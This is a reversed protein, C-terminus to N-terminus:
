LTERVTIIGQTTNINLQVDGVNNYVFDYVCYCPDLENKLEFNNIDIDKDKFKAATHGKLEIVMSICKISKNWYKNGLDKLFYIKNNIFKICKWNSLSKKQTFLTNISRTRSTDRIDGYTRTHYMVPQCVGSRGAYCIGSFSLTYKKYSDDTLTIDTLWELKGFDHDMVNIENHVNTDIIYKGILKNLEFIPQALVVTSNKEDIGIIEIMEPVYASVDNNIPSLILNIHTIEGTNNKLYNIDTIKIHKLSSPRILPSKTTYNTVIM